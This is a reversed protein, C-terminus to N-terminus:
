RIVTTPLIRILGEQLLQSLLDKVERHSREVEVDYEQAITECVEGALIPQQLLQWVRTGTSNLGYYQGTEMGLLVTEGGLGCSAQASTACVLTQDQIGEAPIDGAIM